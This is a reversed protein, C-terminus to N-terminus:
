KRKGQQLAKRYFNMLETERVRIRSRKPRVIKTISAQPKGSVMQMEIKYMMPIFM